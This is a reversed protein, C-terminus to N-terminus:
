GAFRARYDDLNPVDSQQDPEAAGAGARELEMGARRRDGETALLATMAKLYAALSAGKMPIIARVVEGTDEVIGVVQPKLDRSISEAVIWAWAWDSAEYFAQQGSKRLSTYWRKAAPHWDDDEKPIGDDSSASLHAVIANRKTAVRARPNWETVGLEVAKADLEAGTMTDISKAPAAAAGTAAAVKQTQKKPKNRRRRQTERKPIPGRAGV